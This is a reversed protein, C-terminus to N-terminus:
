NDMVYVLFLFYWSIRINGAALEEGEILGGNGQIIKKNKFKMYISNNQSRKKRAEKTKNVHTSVIWM